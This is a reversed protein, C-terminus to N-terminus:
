FKARSTTGTYRTYLRVTYLEDKVQTQPIEFLLQFVQWKQKGTTCNCDHIPMSMWLFSMCIISIIHPTQHISSFLWISCTPIETVEDGILSRSLTAEERNKPINWTSVRMSDLVNSRNYVPQSIATSEMSIGLRAQSDQVISIIHGIQETGTIPDRGGLVGNDGSPDGGASAHCGM